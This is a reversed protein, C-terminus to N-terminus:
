ASVSFRHNTFKAVSLGSRFGYLSLVPFAAFEVDDFIGGSFNAAFTAFTVEVGSNKVCDITVEFGFMGDFLCDGNLNYFKRRDGSGTSKVNLYNRHCEFLSDEM